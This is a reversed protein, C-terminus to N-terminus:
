ADVAARVAAANSLFVSAGAAALSTAQRELGQPDGGTAILAVFVPVELESIAPGLEAAPDASSGHGLVVDLLVVGVDPDEAADALRELRLRHDIMPHPRGRTYEDDGLDIIDASADLDAVIREAEGALTGGSYLGILRGARRPRENASPWSPPEPMDVGAAALLAASGATLDESPIIVSPTEVERLLRDLAVRTYPGIHKAIVGIVEVRPDEDLLRIAGMAALGGVDDTLDRGGLGLVHRVGVGSQDCLACVQQAGTGSASALGIPGPLVVNAFGLGVGDLIVTGCDPGMALLGRSLALRKLDIEDDLPVNDSFVVPHAGAEIAEIAQRFAHEGPVSILAVDAGSQEIAIRLSRPARFNSNGSDHSRGSDALMRDTQTLVHDLSREDTRLAILLDGATVEPLEYGADEVLQLNLATGMAVIAHDVAPDENLQRSLLMLTVSDRYFGSRVEIHRM